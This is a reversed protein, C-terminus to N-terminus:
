SQHGLARQDAEERESIAQDFAAYVDDGLMQELDDRSGDAFAEVVMVFVDQVASFFFKLDFSKDATMIEAMGQEAQAGEIAIIGSKNHKMVDAIQEQPTKPMDLVEAKAASPMDEDLAPLPARANIPEDSEEHTGLANRLWVVLGVAIFAYIILDAPM